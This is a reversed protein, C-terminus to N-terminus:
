TRMFGTSQVTMDTDPQAPWQAAGRGPGWGQPPGVRWYPLWLITGILILVWTFSICINESSGFNRM